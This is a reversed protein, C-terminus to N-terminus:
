GRRAHIQIEEKSHIHRLTQIIMEQCCNKIPRDHGSYIKQIDRCAIKLLAEVYDRTYVDEPCHLRLQTEGSFLVKESPAYLCISDASHDPTHLVELIGDGAKVFQGDSLPEDVGAGKDFALVRVNFHKKIARIGGAQELHKHTLIVQKVTMKSFGASLREIEDIVFADAGPDIITILDDAHNWDGMILYSNCGHNRYNRVLPLIRM